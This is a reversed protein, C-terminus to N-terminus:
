GDIKEEENAGKFPPAKKFGKEKLSVILDKDLVDVVFGKEVRGYTPYLFERPMDADYILRM